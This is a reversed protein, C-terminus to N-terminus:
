QPLSFTVPPLGKLHRAALSRLVDAWVAYAKYTQHVYHDSSYEDPVFGDEDILHSAINVFECGKRACIQVLRQNYLYQAKREVNLGGPLTGTASLGEDVEARMTKWINKLFDWIEPGENLEVYQPLTLYRWRCFQAIEAFSNEPYLDEAEAAKRGEVVIDGGGVSEVRIRATREEGRFAEFDLTNPHRLDAPDERAFVIESPVPSLVERLVRDTGHGVGTKCLSGYLTVRYRDADPTESRFLRAAREPGMTHSSSPGKGVKYLDRISKM